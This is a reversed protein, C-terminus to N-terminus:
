GCSVGPVWMGGSPLTKKLAELHTGYVTGGSDNVLRAHRGWPSLALTHAALYKVGHDTLTGWISAPVRLVADALHLNVLDDTADNFEPFHDKFSTSTVAM